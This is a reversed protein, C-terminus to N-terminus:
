KSIAGGAEDLLGIQRTLTALLTRVAKRDTLLDIRLDEHDVSLGAFDGQRDLGAFDFFVLLRHGIVAGRVRAGAQTVDKAGRQVLRLLGLLVLLSHALLS